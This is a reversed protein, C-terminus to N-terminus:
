PCPHNLCILFFFILKGERIGEAQYFFFSHYSYMDSFDFAFNELKLIMFLIEQTSVLLQNTMIPPPHLM